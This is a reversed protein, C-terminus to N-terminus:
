HTIGMHLFDSCSCCLYIKIKKTPGAAPIVVPGADLVGGSEARTVPTGGGAPLMVSPDAPVGVPGGGLAGGFEVRRVLPGGGAPLPVSPEDPFLVPGRGLARGLESEAAPIEGGAPLGGVPVSLGGGPGM